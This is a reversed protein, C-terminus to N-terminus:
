KATDGCTSCKKGVPVKITYGKQVTVQETGTQVRKVSYNQCGSTTAVHYGAADNAAEGTGFDMGCQNCVAHSEYVPRTEVVPDVYKDEYVTKWTHHHVPQSSSGSDGSPKSGSGSNGSGTSPKSDASNGNSGTSPKNANSSGSNNSPKSGSSSNSGTSPKKGSSTNGASSNSGSVSGNSKGSSSDTKKKTDTSKGSDSKSKASGSADDKEAKSDKKDTKSKADKSANADKSDDKDASKDIVTEQKPVAPDSARDANDGGCSTFALSAAVIVALISAALITKKTKM